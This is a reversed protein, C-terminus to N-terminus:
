ASTPGETTISNKPFTCFLKLYFFTVIFFFLPFELNRIKIIEYPQIGFYRGIITLILSIILSVIFEAFVKKIWWRWIM